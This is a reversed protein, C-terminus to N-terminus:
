RRTEKSLCSFLINKKYAPRNDEDLVTGITSLALFIKVTSVMIRVFGQIRRSRFASSIRVAQISQTAYVHNDEEEEAAAVQISDRSADGSTKAEGNKRKVM